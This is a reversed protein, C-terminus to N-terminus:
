KLVNGSEVSFYGATNRLSFWGGSPAGPNNPMSFDTGASSDLFSRLM